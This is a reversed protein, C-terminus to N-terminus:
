KENRMCLHAPFHFIQSVQSSLMTQSSGGTVFVGFSHTLVVWKFSLNAKKQKLLYSFLLFIIFVSDGVKYHREWNFLLVCFLCM